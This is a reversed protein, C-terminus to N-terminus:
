KFNVISCEKMRPSKMTSGDGLCISVLDQGIKLNALKDMESESFYLRPSYWSNKSTLTVYAEDSLDTAINMIKGAVVFMKGKFRRDASITNEEYANVIDQAMYAPVKQSIDPIGSNPTIAFAGSSFFVSLLLYKKM